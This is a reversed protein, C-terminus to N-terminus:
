PQDLFQLSLGSESLHNEPEMGWHDHAVIYVANSQQIHWYRYFPAIRLTVGNFKRDFNLMFRCGRGHSQEFIADVYGPIVSLHSHNVGQWLQDYELQGMVRWGQFSEPFQVMMGIPSYFYSQSRNYGAAGTSTIDGAGRDHLYRFGMGIYPSLNPNFSLPKGVIGRTEVIYDRSTNSGSGDYNVHGTVYDGELKFLYPALHTYAGQVGVMTGNDQMVGPEKYHLYSVTPGVQWYALSQLVWAGLPL